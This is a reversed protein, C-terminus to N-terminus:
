FSDIFVQPNIYDIEIYFTFTISQQIGNIFLTPSTPDTNEFQSAVGSNSDYWYSPENCNQACGWSTTSASFTYNASTTTIPIAISPSLLSVPLSNRVLSAEFWISAGGTSQMNFTISSNTVNAYSPLM